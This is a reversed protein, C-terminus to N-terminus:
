SGSRAEFPLRIQVRGGGGTDMLKWEGEQKYGTEM